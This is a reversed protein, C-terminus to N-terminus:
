LPSRLKEDNAGVGTVDRSTPIAVGDITTATGTIFGTRPPFMVYVAVTVPGTPAAAGPPNTM